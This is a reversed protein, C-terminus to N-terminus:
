SAAKLALLSPPFFARKAHVSFTCFDLFYVSAATSPLYEMVSATTKLHAVGPYKVEARGKGTMQVCKSPFVLSNSTAGQVLIWVNGLLYEIYSM